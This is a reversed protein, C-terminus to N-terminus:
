EALKSAPHGSCPNRLVDAFGINDVQNFAYEPKPPTQTIQFVCAPTASASRYRNSFTAHLHQVSFYWTV